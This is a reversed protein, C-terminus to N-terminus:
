EARLLSQHVWGVSGSSVRVLTWGEREREPFVPTGETLVGVVPDSTSPGRRLHARRVRVYRTGPRDRVMRAERELLESIRTSRYVFFLAAGFHGEQIQSDAERLKGRAEDIADWRWPTLIAAREIEIRAEALSSVADARSHSGRLGSEALVLAEEAQRLDERLRGVEGELHAARDVEARRYIAVDIVPAEETLHHMMSACGIPLLSAATMGLICIRHLFRRPHLEDRMPRQAEPTEVM